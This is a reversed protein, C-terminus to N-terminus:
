NDAASALPSRYAPIPAAGQEQSQQQGKAAPVIFALVGFFLMALNQRLAHM